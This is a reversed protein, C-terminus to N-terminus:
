YATLDVIQRPPTKDGAFFTVVNSYRSWNPVEDAIRIVAYYRVGAVLGSVVMSDPTGPASPVKGTTNVITAANWWGLTDTGSIAYSSYRLDYRSARGITGDDGSATWVLTISNATQGFAAGHSTAAALSGLVILTAFLRRRRCTRSPM